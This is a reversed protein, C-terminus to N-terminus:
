FKDEKQKLWRRLENTSVPSSSDKLVVGKSNLLRVRFPHKASSLRKATEVSTHYGYLYEQQTCSTIFIVQLEETEHGLADLNTNQIRYKEDSLTPTQILLVKMDIDAFAQGYQSTIDKTLTTTHYLTGGSDKFEIDLVEAAYLVPAIFLLAALTILKM